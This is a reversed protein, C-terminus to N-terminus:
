IIICCDLCKKGEKQEQTEPSPTGQTVQAGSSRSSNVHSSSGNFDKPEDKKEVTPSAEENRLPFSTRLPASLYLNPMMLPASSRSPNGNDSFGNVNKQEERKKLGKIPELQHSKGEDSKLEKEGNNSKIKDNDNESKNLEKEKIDPEPEKFEHGYEEEQNNIDPNEFTVQINLIKRAIDAFLQELISSDDYNVIYNPLNLDKAIKDLEATETIDKQKDEIASVIAKFANPNTLQNVGKLAERLVNYSEKSTKDWVFVAAPVDNFNKKYFNDNDNPNFSKLIIINFNVDKFDKIKMSMVYFDVATVGGLCKKNRKKFFKVINHGIRKDGVFVVRITPIEEEM